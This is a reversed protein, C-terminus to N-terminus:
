KVEQLSRFDKDPIGSSSLNDFILMMAYGAICLILLVFFLKPKKILLFTLIVGVAIAGVTNAQAYQVVDALMKNFDM